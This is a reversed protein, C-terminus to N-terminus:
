TRSGNPPAASRVCRTDSERSRSRDRWRPPRRATSRQKQFSLRYDVSRGLPEGESHKACPAGPHRNPCLRRMRETRAAEASARALGRARPPIMDSSGSSRAPRRRKGAVIAPKWAPRAGRLLHLRPERQADLKRDPRQEADDVARCAAPVPGAPGCAGVQSPGGRRAHPPAERRALKAAWATSSARSAHREDDALALQAVAVEADRADVELSDVVGFDHSVTRAWRAGMIGTLADSRSQDVASGPVTRPGDCGRARRRRQTRIARTAM